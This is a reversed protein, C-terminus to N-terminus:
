RFNKATVTKGDDNEEIEFGEKLSNL